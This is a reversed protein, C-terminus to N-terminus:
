RWIAVSLHKMKKWILRKNNIFYLLLFCSKTHSVILSGWSGMRFEHIYIHISFCVCGCICKCMCVSIYVCICMYEYLSVHTCVYIRMGLTCLESIYIFTRVYVYMCVCVCMWVRVSAYACVYTAWQMQRYKRTLKFYFQHALNNGVSVSYIVLWKRCNLSCAGLWFSSIFYKGTDKVWYSVYCHTFFESFYKRKFNNKLQTMGTTSLFTLNM